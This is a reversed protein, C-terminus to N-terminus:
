LSLSVSFIFTRKVYSDSIQKMVTLYEDCFELVSFDMQHLTLM